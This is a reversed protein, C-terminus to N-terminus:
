RYDSCILAYINQCDTLTAAPQIQTKMCELPHQFKPWIQSEREFLLYFNTKVRNLGPPDKPVGWLSKDMVRKLYNKSIQHSKRVNIPFGPSIKFNGFKSAM